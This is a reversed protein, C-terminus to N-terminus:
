SRRPRRWHSRWAGLWCRGGTQMRKVFFIWCQFLHHHGCNWRSCSAVFCAHTVPADLEASASFAVGRAERTLKRGAPGRALLRGYNAAQYYEIALTSFDSKNSEQRKKSTGM